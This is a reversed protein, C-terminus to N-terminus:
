FPVVDEVRDRAYGAAYGAAGGIGAGAAGGVPGLPSGVTAGVKAGKSAGRRAHEDSTCPLMGAGYTARPCLVPHGVPDIRDFAGTRGGVGSVFGVRM